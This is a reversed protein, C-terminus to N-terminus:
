CVGAEYSLKLEIERTLLYYSVLPSVISAYHKFLSSLPIQRIWLCLRHRAQMPVQSCKNLLKGTSKAFCSRPIFLGPQLGHGTVGATGLAEGDM